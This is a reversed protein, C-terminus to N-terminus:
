RGEVWDVAAQLLERSNTLALKCKINTCHSEVTKVSVGLDDAIETTTHLLGIRHFVERERRTLRLNRPSLSAHVPCKKCDADHGNHRLCNLMITLYSKLRSEPARAPFFGCSQQSQRPLQTGAHQRESVLIIKPAAEVNALADGVHDVLQADLILIDFRGQWGARIAQEPSQIMVKVDGGAVEEIAAHLGRVFIDSNVVISIRILKESM